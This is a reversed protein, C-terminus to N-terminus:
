SDNVKKVVSVLQEWYNVAANRDTYESITRNEETLIKELQKDTSDFVIEKITKLLADVDGVPSLFGNKGPVIVGDIGENRAGIVINGAAMAELYALGFTEMFSVLVFVHSGELEEIVQQRPLAGKFRVRQAIGLEAAMTELKAREGGDGIITYTWDFADKLSALASLVTDIKKREILAAVTVFNVPAVPGSGKSGEKWQTMRNISEGPELIINEEVGSFAIFCKDKYRPFWRTIKKYIYNSRCAVVSAYQLVEGCRRTFDAPEEEMLDPTIHFGAALPVKLRQAYRCGIHLSKDYHAVVVDPKFGISPMHSDLFRYLSRYYYAIKPIKVIPFVIVPIGDISITYTKADKGSAARKQKGTVWERLYRYVPCVVLVRVGPEEEWAKVMKHLAHTVAGTNDVDDVPYLSSIFLVNM